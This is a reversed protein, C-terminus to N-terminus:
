DQSLYAAHNFIHISGNVVISDEYKVIDSDRSVTANTRNRQHEQLTVYDIQSLTPPSILIASTM